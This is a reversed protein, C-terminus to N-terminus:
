NLPSDCVEAPNGLSTQDEGPTDKFFPTSLLPRHESNENSLKDKLDLATCLFNKPDLLNSFLTM